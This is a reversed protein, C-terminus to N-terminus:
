DDFLEKFRTIGEKIRELAAKKDRRYWEHIEAHSDTTCTILNDLRYILGPAEDREIIHHVVPKRCQVLKGIGLLWIDYGYYHAIANKRCQRWKYSGYLRRAENEQMRKNQQRRSCTPCRAGQFLKHCSPCRRFTAM